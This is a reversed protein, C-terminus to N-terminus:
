VLVIDIFPLLHHFFYRVGYLRKLFGTAKTAAILNEPISSTAKKDGTKPDGTETSDTVMKDLYYSFTAGFM